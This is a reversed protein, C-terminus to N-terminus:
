GMKLLELTQGSGYCTYFIDDKCILIVNEAKEHLYEQNSELNYFKPYLTEIHFFNFGSFVVPFM